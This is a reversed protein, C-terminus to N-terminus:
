IVPCIIQKLTRASSHSRSIGSNAILLKVADKNRHPHQVRFGGGFEGIQVGGAKGGCLDVADGVVRRAAIRDFTKELSTGHTHPAENWEILM